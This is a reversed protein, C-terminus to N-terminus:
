AVPEHDVIAEQSIRTVGNRTALWYDHNNDQVIKKVENDSLGDAETLILVRGGPEFITIGDYESCFWIRDQQDVFINRVKDGALGNEKRLTEIIIWQGGPLGGSQGATKERTYEFLNAGGETYLGGGVLVQHEPTEVIATICNHVLGNKIDFVQSSEGNKIVIGGGVADYAGFWIGGFSDKLLAKISDGPLGDNKTLYSIDGDRVVAVGSFTAAYLTRNDVRILDIIRPDTLGDQKSINEIMVGSAIHSLGEDHGVWLTSLDSLLVRVSQFSRDSNKIEIQELTAPDIRFLGQLGGAYVIGDLVTIASFEKGNLLSTYGPHNQPKTESTAAKPQDNILLYLGAAIVLILIALNIKRLM